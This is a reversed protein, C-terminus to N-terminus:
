FKDACKIPIGALWLISTNRFEAGVICSLLVVLFPFKKM